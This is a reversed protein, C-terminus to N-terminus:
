GLRIARHRLFRRGRLGGRRKSRKRNWGAVRHGVIQALSVPKRRWAQDHSKDIEERYNMAPGPYGILQWGIMNANGGHLPDSFMGEITHRLLQFLTTRKIARLRQDREAASLDAFNGLGGIGERYIEHPNREGQCSRCRNSLRRSPTAISTAATLARWNRTSTSWWEPRGLARGPRTRLSYAIAPRRSSAGKLRRSFACLALTLGVFGGGAIVVDVAKLQRM